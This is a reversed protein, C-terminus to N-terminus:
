LFCSEQFRLTDIGNEFSYIKSYSELFLYGFEEKGYTKLTKEEKSNPFVSFTFLSM